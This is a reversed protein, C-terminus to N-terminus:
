LLSLLINIVPNTPKTTFCILLYVVASSIVWYSYFTVKPNSLNRGPINISEGLFKQQTKKIM